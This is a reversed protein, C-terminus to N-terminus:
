PIAEAAKPTRLARHVLHGWLAVTPLAKSAHYVVDLIRPQLPTWRMPMHYASLGQPDLLRYPTWCATLAYLLWLWRSEGKAITVAYVPLLMVYHHEWVDHYVLFFTTMWLCLYLREDPFPSRWTAWLAVALVLVVWARGLWLHAEPPLGPGLASALSYLWQRVGLNGLQHGPPGAGWNAAFAPWSSPYLWFYPLSTAAVVFAALALTRWRRLRLYLPVFLATNQKWLLSAMWLLPVGIRETRHGSSRGGGRPSLLLIGLVWAAQVLSFQGLYLELYYPTFVLWLSALLAREVPSRGLRSSLCACSLLVFEVTLLWIRYAWLPSLTNLLVGLTYAPLPLYRYPTYHPVVVDIVENDSEYASIGMRVNHGAQYLAYFDWGRRGHTATSDFTLRHYTGLRWSLLLSLHFLLAVM